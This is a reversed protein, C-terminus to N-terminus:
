SHPSCSGGPSPRPGHAWSFYASRLSGPGTPDLERGPCVSKDISPSFEKPFGQELFCSGVHTLWCLGPAPVVLPSVRQGTVQSMGQGAVLTSRIGCMVEGPTGRRRNHSPELFQSSLFSLAPPVHSSWSSGEDLDSM